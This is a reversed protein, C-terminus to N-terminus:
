TYFEMQLNRLHLAKPYQSITLIVGPHRLAFLTRVCFALVTTGLIIGNPV